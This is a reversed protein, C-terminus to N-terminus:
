NENMEDLWSRFTDNRYLCAVGGAAVWQECNQSSDDILTDGPKCHRYKNSAYPGFFVPYNYGFHERIWDVKDMAAYPFRDCQPLATLFAIARNHRPDALERFYARFPENFDLDRFVRPHHAILEAWHEKSILEGVAKNTNFTRNVYGTLDACVDDMDISIM